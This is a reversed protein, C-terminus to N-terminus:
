IIPDALIVTHDFGCSIQKALGSLAVKYPFYQDRTQGIGLCGHRNKGWTFVHRNSNIVAFHSLGCHVSMPKALRDFENNGFLTVPIKFPKSTKELKPGGGLIGYGWVFVEHHENLVICFSGGAAVDIIKGCMSQVCELMKPLNIQQIDHENSLQACESSGWGFIEGKETLALVTDACGTVKLVKEFCLDGSIIKPTSLNKTSCQGMQGDAGWGCAYVNGQALFITHDQGCCVADVNMGDLNKIHNLTVCVGNSDFEPEQGCQGYSNNGLLFVGEKDTVVAVHARGASLSIIRTTEDRLGLDIPVPRDVIKDSREGIQGETALGTGYLKIRDDSDVGIATFGHGCAVRTVVNKEAFSIRVPKAVYKKMLKNDSNEIGLAGLEALGFSYMRCKKKKSSVPEPLPIFSAYCRVKCVDKVLFSIRRLVCETMKIVNIKLFRKLCSKKNIFRRETIM